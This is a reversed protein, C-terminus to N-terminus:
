LEGAAVAVLLRELEAVLAARDRTTFRHLEPGRFDGQHVVLGYGGSALDGEPYWGIDLLCNTAEHRMQVMDQKFVWWRDSESVVAPDPDIEYLGNNYSILWGAPIRLPQLRFDPPM